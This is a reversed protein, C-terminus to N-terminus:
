NMYNQLGLGCASRPVVVDDKYRDIAVPIHSIDEGTYTDIDNLGFGDKSEVEFGHAKFWKCSIYMDLMDNLTQEYRQYHKTYTRSWEHIGKSDDIKGSNLGDTIIDSYMSVDYGALRLQQLLVDKLTDISKRAYKVLEPCETAIKRSITGSLEYEEQAQQNEQFWVLFEKSTHFKGSNTIITIPLQNMELFKVMSAIDKSYYNTSITVGYLKPSHLTYWAQKHMAEKDAVEIVQKYGNDLRMLKIKNPKCTYDFEAVTRRTGYSTSRKVGTDCASKPAAYPANFKDQLDMLTYQYDMVGISSMKM